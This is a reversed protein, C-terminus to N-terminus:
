TPSEGANDLRELFGCFAEVDTVLAQFCEDLTRVLEFIRPPQLSFTYVNRVVNRFGRYEDLCNRTERSIVPPRVRAIESNM